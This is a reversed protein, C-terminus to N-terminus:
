QDAERREEVFRDAIKIYVDWGEKLAQLLKIAQGTSRLSSNELKFFEFDTVTAEQKLFFIWETQPEFRGSNFPASSSDATTTFVLTKGEVTKGKFLESLEAWVRVKTYGKNISIVETRILKGRFVLDAKAYDHTAAKVNAEAIREPSKANAETLCFVVAFFTASISLRLAKESFQDLKM